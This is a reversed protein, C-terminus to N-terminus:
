KRFVYRVYPVEVDEGNPDDACIELVLAKQHGPVEAKTVQAVADELPLDMRDKLKAPPMFFSYIMSVGSSVMTIELEHEKKMMDIFQRLTMPGQLDFRDWLGWKKGNYEHTEFVMPESFGFFPLALNVFGNKYAEIKNHGGVVKYLELCILGTVLATTTAIAPIIKGAIGKTRLRDAPPIEYNAARLNSMATITDIHFNSDDDKEFDVPIPKQCTSPAPLKAALEDIKSDDAMGADDNNNENESVQIKVGSRPTFVPVQVTPLVKRIRDRDRVQALGYNFAHLNAAAEIFDMHREDDMNFVAPSPCRKPASWFPTGTSTVQDPPFNFLLQKIQNAFLDEFRLRAWVVCDEFSTPRSSLADGVGELIEIAQSANQKKITALFNPSTIYQNVNEPVQTFIGEFADRAWQITHEIAYPFNKLTCIPISKEPPDRSSSYSETLHPIVVQTNGKTGLTGSELLPKRYYVCRRDMYMRADVNDLANTVADLSNYFDDNYVNETEPGVRNQHAEINVAPNMKKVAAAATDAKHKSVDWPRFLFQRNLNSKEITDNDTVFVKGNQGCAIGMLAWNKLMECGIAGAGVLFVKLNQLKELMPRGFVAAEGDYRSGTPQFESDPVSEIAPPLSELSDFYLWQHIPSFKGTCSKMVEQAATGGLVAQMPAIDGTAQSALESLLTENLSDDVKYDKGNLDKVLSLFADRDAKNRPLPLRGNASQFADLAQFGLHLQAPRDFKAFDTIVFEPDRFSEELSKFAVTKPMKVQEVVGGSVYRAFSSTDGISFSYKDIVKIPRPASGNLETMGKIETFTVYDGDEFGHRSEDLCTVVGNTEQTISAILCNGVPEGTADTVTFQPGNDVFIYGFLGATRAAIFSIGKAHTIKNIRLEESRSLTTAVVVQFNSVFAEDLPGDHVSVPVYSNLEQLKPASVAARPKGIDAESLFFQSSLDSTKAQENDYLVVSKVGGLIVNKAIEVGLGGLGIILVNSSNLKKMAEAGLVYLQRSYLSEDIEGGDKKDAASM